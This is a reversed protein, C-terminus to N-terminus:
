YNILYKKIYKYDIEKFAKSDLAIYAYKFLNLVFKKKNLYILYSILGLISLSIIILITSTM